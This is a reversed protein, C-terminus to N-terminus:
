KEDREKTMKGSLIADIFVQIFYFIICSIMASGGGINLIALTAMSITLTKSGATFIMATRISRDAKLLAGGYWLGALLGVRLLLCVGALILLMTLPFNKIQENALSFFSIALLIVCTSPIYGSWGPLKKGSFRKALYGAFFPLIVLLMLKIFMKMPNTDINGAGALCWALMWPLTFVGILNYVVTFLMAALGNGGANTTMVIGSSLTPPMALIVALGALIMTDLGTLRALGIGCWPALAMSFLGSFIFVNLLKRDFKCEGFDTQWGCIVFIAVIFVATGCLNELRIGLGPILVAMIAALVMGVPLFCKKLM